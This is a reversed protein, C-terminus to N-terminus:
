VSRAPGSGQRPMPSNESYAPFSLRCAVIEAEMANRLFWARQRLFRWRKGGEILGKLETFREFPVSLTFEVGSEHVRKAIAENFFASDIRTELKILPLAASVRHACAGIFADAGNSDYANGARHHADLVQDTQAVTCYLPYYSRAGKKKKNFGVV